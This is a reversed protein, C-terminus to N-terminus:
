FRAHNKTDGGKQIWDARCSPHLSYLKGDRMGSFYPERTEIKKGCHSCIIESM